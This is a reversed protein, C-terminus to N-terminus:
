GGLQVTPSILNLGKLYKFYEAIMLMHVSIILAIPEQALIVVWIPVTTQYTM